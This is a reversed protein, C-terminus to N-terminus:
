YPTQGGALPLYRRNSEQGPRDRVTIESGTGRLNSAQPLPKWDARMGPPTDTYYVTYTQNSEARWTITAEGDAFTTAINPSVPYDAPVPESVCGALLFAPLLILAKNMLFDEV